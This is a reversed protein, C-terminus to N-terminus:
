FLEGFAVEYYNKLWSCALFMVFYFLYDLMGDREFIFLM